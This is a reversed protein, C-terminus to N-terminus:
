KSNTKNLKSCSNNENIKDLVKEAADFQEIKGNSLLMIKGAQEILRKQHSVIINASNTTNFIEVLNDFSWIDIGAEPEDFLNLKAHRALASAIEIRKQEGGSLKNSLERDLYERACLGLKSLIDCYDNFKSNNNSALELMKRVTLGKFTIPTQFSFAIGLRAREDISLSTIDKGDFIISGSTPKVIGMIIKLLTSKGSGNHGTIVLNEGDNLSFTIDKLIHKQTGKESVIYNINKVELM